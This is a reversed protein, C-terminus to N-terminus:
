EAKLGAGCEFEESNYFVTSCQAVHQFVPLLLVLSLVWMRWDKWFDMAHHYYILRFIFLTCGANFLLSFNASVVLDMSRYTTEEYAILQGRENRHYVGLDNPQYAVCMNHGAILNDNRLQTEKWDYYLKFTTAIISLPILICIILIHCRM